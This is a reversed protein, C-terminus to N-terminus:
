GIAWTLRRYVETVFIMRGGDRVVVVVVVVVM